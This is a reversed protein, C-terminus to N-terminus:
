AAETRRSNSHCEVAALPYATRDKFRESRSICSVGSRYHAHDLSKARLRMAPRLRQEDIQAKPQGLGPQVLPDDDAMMGLPQRPQAVAAQRHVLQREAAPEVRHGPRHEPPDRPRVPGVDHHGPHVPGAQLHRAAAIDLGGADAAIVVEFVVLGAVPQHRDRRLDGVVQRGAAPRALADADDWVERADLGARRHAAGIAFVADADPRNNFLVGGGGNVQIDIFGPALLGGDLACRRADAPVAAAPVLAAIRGGAILVAHGDLMAEGTFLRAGTLALM